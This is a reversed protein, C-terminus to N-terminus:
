RILMFEPTMFIAWLVDEIEQATPAASLSSDLLSSEDATPRRSFAFETLHNILGSKDDAWRVALRGAGQSLYSALTSGNTLDVAELTTVESPRMSVIQERMPRGLSRMLFDSKLLSTRTMRLDNNISQLLLTRGSANITTTWASIAPVVVVSKWNGKIAGLRGEKSNPVNANWEWSNDSAVTLTKGSELKVRAEFFLAAANPGNGGNTAIVVIENKGKKLTPKLLMAHPKTWDDGSEIRRGNVYLVFSNDCTIVGGASSVNDSLTFQHRISITEGAAPVGGNAASDGWIWSGTLEVEAAQKDSVLVRAVAADFAAPASGTIQWVGDLFQEATMRRTIPGHYVFDAAKSDATKNRVACHSQYAESTAILHLVAKLDYNSDQLSVALTDLLDESWPKSQMADLPHVIGRGMLKYWLRNVITRTFRGNDPHTMLAALQRLREEKPAAPDITGLEPFLWKAEAQRGIPKDCRHIEMPHASYIAALGYAEDLKWRDIFSDHCSACKMNIGLFSQSVSQAFQIEVTQGASVEGRWRIGDIFGQSASTPPAILERAFEDFPRNTLLADYLWTSVQQRGGTIFGTGSYDNRLLDNFFTLWHDAYAIRDDLLQRILIERKNAAADATFTALLDPEPLLGVLDLHVRRLFAADDIREPRPVQNATMDADLIRDIPNERGDVVPPLEPRRPKLPPEYAIPAFSFGDDWPLGDAIWNKLTAVEAATLREKDASPMQTDKDASLVLEILRSEAPKGVQVHDSEVLLERTNMSFSGKAERGGHCGVCHKNLIPVVDHAFDTTSDTVQGNANFPLQVFLLLSLLEVATRRCIFRSM